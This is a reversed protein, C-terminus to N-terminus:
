LKKMYFNKTAGTTFRTSNMNNNELYYGFLTMYRPMKGSIITPSSETKSSLVVGDSIRTYTIILSTSTKRLNFRVWAGTVYTSSDAKFPISSNTGNYFFYGFTNHLWRIEFGTPWNSATQFDPNRFLELVQQYGGYGSFYFDLNCEFDNNNMWTGLDFNNYDILSVLKNANDTHRHALVGFNTDFTLNDNFNPASTTSGYNRLKGIYQSELLNGHNLGDETLPFNFLYQDGGPTQTSNHERRM